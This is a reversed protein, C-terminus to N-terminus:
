TCLFLRPPMCTCCGVQSGFHSYASSSGITWRTGDGGAKEKGEASVGDFNAAETEGVVDMVAANGLGRGARESTAEVKQNPDSPAVTARTLPALPVPDREHTVRMVPVHDRLLAAGRADTVMPAGFTMVQGVNYGRLKLKVAVIVAVAGGLSHGALKVEAGPELFQVIDDAVADAVQKFGAHFVCGCEEDFVQRTKLDISLDTLSVTGRIAVHHVRRHEEGPLHGVHVFYRTSVQTPTAISRPLPLPVPPPFSAKSAGLIISGHVLTLPCSPVDGYGVSRNVIALLPPSLLRPLKNCQM